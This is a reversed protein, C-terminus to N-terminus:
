TTSYTSNLIIVKSGNFVAIWLHGRSDITMGDLMGGADGYKLVARKNSIAGTADDYDYADVPHGDAITDIFYFTKRDPSWCLGNSLSVGPEMRKCGGGDMMYVSGQGREIEGPRKPDEMGMTGFWLRGSPDCKGDNCRTNQADSEARRLARQETVKGAKWDIKVLVVSQDLGVLFESGAGGEVPIVFTVFKCEPVGVGVHTKKACDYRCVKCQLIDVFYLCDESAVYHPGEGCSTLEKILVEVSM